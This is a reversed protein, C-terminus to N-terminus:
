QNDNALEDLMEQFLAISKKRKASADILLMTHIADHEGGLPLLKMNPKIQLQPDDILSSPFIRVTTPSNFMVMETFSNITKYEFTPEFGYTQCLDTIARETPKFFQNTEVISVNKLDSVALSENKSLSHTKDCWVALREKHLPFALLGAPKYREAIEEPSGYEYVIHADLFSSKIMDVPCSYQKWEFRIPISPNLLRFHDILEYLRLTGKDLFTPQRIIIPEFNETGLKRCKIATKEFHNVFENMQELFFLGAPTLELKGGRSILSTGVATEIQKIHKSLNSQTMNLERAAKSINMHKAFTAFEKIYSIHM